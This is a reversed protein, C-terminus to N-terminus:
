IYEMNSTWKVRRTTYLGTSRPVIYSYCNIINPFPLFSNHSWSCNLFPLTIMLLFINMWMYVRKDKKLWHAPELSMNPGYTLGDLYAATHAPWRSSFVRDKWGVPECQKLTPPFVRPFSSSSFKYLCISVSSFGIRMRDRYNLHQPSWCFGATSTLINQEKSRFMHKHVTIM